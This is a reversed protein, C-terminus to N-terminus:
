ARDLQGLRLELLEWVARVRPVSRLARPCTLWLEVAPGHPLGLDLVVLNRDLECLARTLLAVGLGARVAEVQVIHSSVLLRPEVRVHKALLETDRGAVGPLQVSIWDLQAPELAVPDRRGRAKGGRGAAARGAAARLAARLYRKHALVALPLCALRKAVLDGSSPRYFRLALDAERRGLDASQDSGLLEVRLKPYLAHLEGLVRPILVQVAFSDTLALRVSGAITQESGRVADGLERVHSEILEAKDRLALSLETPRPGDPLRDFLVAGLALEVACPCVM